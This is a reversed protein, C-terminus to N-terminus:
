FEWKAETRSRTRVAGQWSARAGQQDARSQAELRLDLGGCGAWERAREQHVLWALPLSSTLFPVALQLPM